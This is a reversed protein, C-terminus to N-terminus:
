AEDLDIRDAIEPAMLGVHLALLILKADLTDGEGLATEVRLDVRDADKVSNSEAFQEHGLMCYALLQSAEAFAVDQNRSGGDRKNLKIVTLKVSEPVLLPHVGSARLADDLARIAASPGLMDFLRFM